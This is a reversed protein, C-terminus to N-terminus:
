DLAFKIKLKRKRKVKRKVFPIDTHLYCDTCIPGIDTWQGGIIQCKFKVGCHKCKWKRATTDLGFKIKKRKRKKM